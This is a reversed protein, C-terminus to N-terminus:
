QISEKLGDMEKEMLRLRYEFEVLYDRDKEMQKKYSSLDHIDRKILQINTEIDNIKKVSNDWQAISRRLFFAVLAGSAFSASICLASAPTLATM